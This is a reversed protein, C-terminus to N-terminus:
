LFSLKIRQDEDTFVLILQFLGNDKNNNKQTKKEEIHMGLDNNMM